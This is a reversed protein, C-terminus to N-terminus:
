RINVDNNESSIRKYYKWHLQIKLAGIFTKKKRHIM